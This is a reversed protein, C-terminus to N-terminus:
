RTRPPPLVADAPTETLLGAIVDVARDFSTTGTNLSVHYFTADCWDRGTLMRFFRARQADSARVTAAATAEDAFGYERMALAARAEFPAHLFVRLVDPRDRLIAAAGRGVIVAKGQEATTLIIRRETEFVDSESPRSTPPPLFPGEVAGRSLMTGIEGWFGRVREELPEVDTAECKLLEAAQALIERDAYRYGLRQALAHGIWAGGSGFQRSIAVVTRM